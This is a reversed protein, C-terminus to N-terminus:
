RKNLTLRGAIGELFDKRIKSYHFFGRAVATTKREWMRKMKAARYRLMM